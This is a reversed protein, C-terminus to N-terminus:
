RAFSLRAKQTILEIAEATSCHTLNLQDFNTQGRFWTLQRKAYQRTAQQIRAICEPVTLDGALLQRIERLGLAQSATRGIEGLARVEEVVGEAFMREVRLNIRAYLDDRDRLLFVGRANTANARRLESAPKGTVLCIEIARLVRRRNATDVTSASERDLLLLRLNLEGLSFQELQERLRADPAPVPAFGDTLARVYLGSGGVVIANKQRSHIVGIAPAAMDRFRAASMEETPAINGILHHPVLARTAANPQATLRALGRYVQFADAGVVEANCATAVAAALESKGTATPGVIYFVREAETIM